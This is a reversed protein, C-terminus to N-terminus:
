DRNPADGEGARVRYARVPEAINKLKHEGVFEYTFPLRTGVALRVSESIIVGGAEALRELRAAINVGDGYIR